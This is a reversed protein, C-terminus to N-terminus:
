MGVGSYNRMGRQWISYNLLSILIIWCLALLFQNSFQIWTLQGLFAKTPFSIISSFPLLELPAKLWEPFFSLPLTKGGLLSVLFRLMIVLTWVSDAWFAAYEFALSLIFYLVTSVLLACVGQLLGYNSLEFPIIGIKTVLIAFLFPISLLTARALHAILKYSLFSLPYVLYRSLSGDYIDTAVGSVEPIAIEFVFIAIFSYRLMEEFSLGAIPQQQNLAYVAKWLFVAVIFQVLLAIVYRMWFDVRYSFQRKLETAFVASRWSM